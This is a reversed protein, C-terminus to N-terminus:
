SHVLLMIERDCAHLLYKNIPGRQYHVEWEFITWPIHLIKIYIYVYIYVYATM